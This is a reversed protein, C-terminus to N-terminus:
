HFVAHDTSESGSPWYQVAAFGGAAHLAEKSTQYSRIIFGLITPLTDENIEWHITPTVCNRIIGWEGM